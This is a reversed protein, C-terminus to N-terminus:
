GKAQALLGPLYLNITNGSIAYGIGEVSIGVAKATVIGIVRGQIDLLPGGSNGPNIASDTQVWTINRGDDYQITSVLGSTISLNENGLSYGLVVAQEGINVGSLDGISLFKLNTASIRILALDHDMDRAKVTGAYSTGDKLYVTIFNADTVMHNATLILGDSQIIIGSGQVEQGSKQKTDIRVVADGAMAAIQETTMQPTDFNEPIILSADTVMVGQKRPLWKPAFDVATNNTVRKLNSGDKDIIYIEDEPSDMDSNFIIRTGDPSWCPSYSGYDGSASVPQVNSGDANMVFIGWKGSVRDSEFLIQKGDPSWQPFTDYFYSNTIMKQQSGDANMVYIKPYALSTDMESIFVIKTGDPSWSPYDDYVNNNTLRQFNGGDVDMVYIEPPDTEWSQFVIKQGDPSWSPEYAKRNTVVLRPFDGETDAIYMSDTNDAYDVYLMRRGDSSFVFRPEVQGVGINLKKVNSGDADMIYVDFKEENENQRNSLFMLRDPEVTVDSTATITVSNKTAEVTIDDNYTGPTSGATFLGDTTITGANGSVSWKYDLGTIRNGYKDIGAAIFQQTMGMGLDIKTPATVIQALAGPVVTINGKAQLVTAGQTVEVAIADNYSAAKKPASYIGAPTISGASTNIMSWTTQLNEINNGYRDQAIVQLQRTDGANIELTSLTASALPDPKVTVSASGVASFNELEATATVGKAFAGAKTGSTFIGQNTITGAESVWNITAESIPNGSSDSVETAFAQTQGINLEIVSPTLKVTSVPGHVVTINATAVTTKSPKDKKFATVTVTYTGAKTYEHTVSEAVTGTNETVGDGFDWNFVTSNDSPAKTINTFVVSLPAQGGTVSSQFAAKPVSQCGIAMPILSLILLITIGSFVLKKM